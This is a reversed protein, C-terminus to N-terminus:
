AARQCPVRSGISKPWNQELVFRQTQADDKRGNSRRDLFGSFQPNQCGLAWCNGPLQFYKRWVSEKRQARGVTSWCLAGSLKTFYSGIFQESIAKLISSCFGVAVANSTARIHANIQQATASELSSAFSSRNRSAQSSTLKRIWAAVSWCAATVSSNSTRELESGCVNEWSWIQIKIRDM